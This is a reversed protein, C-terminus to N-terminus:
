PMEWGSVFELEIEAQRVSADLNAQRVRAAAGIRYADLLELITREGADYSVQAIHELVVAGDVARARYSDAAARRTVVTARLAAIEARIAVHFAEARARAQNARAEAVAHDSQNYDFIPLAAQIVFVGGVDGNGSNSSKAGVVLEPEPVRRRVAARMGLEAADAERGLALLDGRTSEARQLLVVDEPVLGRSPASESVVLRTADFPEAFFGAMAAQARARDNEATALDTEVDVLEREARLRDFGAADGAAERRILAEALVRLRDRTATFERVRVQASALEAFAIRLDARARRISEDARHRTADALASASQTELGRRGSLPLVQSVTTMTETVGAASERGFSLRPNPWRGAVLVDALAVDLASRIARVRPSEASLRALVEAETLPPLQAGASAPYLVAALSACLLVSRM